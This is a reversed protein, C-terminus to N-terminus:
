APWPMESTLLSGFFATPKESSSGGRFILASSNPSKVEQILQIHKLRTHIEEPYGELDQLALEGSLKASKSHAAPSKQCENLLDRTRTARARAVLKSQAEPAKLPRGSGENHRGWSKSASAPTSSHCRETTSDNSSRTSSVRQRVRFLSAIDLSFAKSRKRPVLTEM